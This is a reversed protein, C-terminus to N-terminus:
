QWGIRILPASGWLTSGYADRIASIVSSANPVDGTGVIVEMVWTTVVGISNYSSTLAAAQTYISLDVLKNDLPMPVKPVRGFGVADTPAVRCMPLVKTRPCLYCTTARTRRRLLEMCHTRTAARLLRLERSRPGPDAGVPVACATTDM